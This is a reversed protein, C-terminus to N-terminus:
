FGRFIGDSGAAGAFDTFDMNAISLNNEVSWLEAPIVRFMREPAFVDICLVPLDAHTLTIADSIFVVAQNAAIASTALVHAEAGSFKKDEIFQLNALFEDESPTKAAKVLEQWASENSFDTRFLPTADTNSEEPM